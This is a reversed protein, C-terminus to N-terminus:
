FTDIADDGAQARLRRLELLYEIRQRAQPSYGGGGRQARLSTLREEIGPAEDDAVEDGTEAADDNDYSMSAGMPSSVSCPRMFPAYLPPLPFLINQERRDAAEISPLGVVARRALSRPGADAGGGGM